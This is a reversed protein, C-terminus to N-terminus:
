HLKMTPGMRRNIRDRIILFATKLYGFLVVQHFRYLAIYFWRALRGEFTVSGSLNGMIQGVSSAKSLSVLSGRDRYAFALAPQARVRRRLSKALLAAQQSAAQARPPVPQEAGEPICQACDGMAYINADRTTQLTPTVVLQHIGNTELGDLTALLAPAKVGASWVKIDARLTKGSQTLLHDRRVETILEGTLVHINLRQLQKRIATSSTKALAPMVRTAAEVVTISVNQPAIGKFGYRNLERASHHLEAALEIGTAGAGVIVIALARRGDAHDGARWYANLLQRRLSEAARRQDLFICHQRAGPTGFDNTESGLAIVLTDYAVTRRPLIETDGETVAALTVCRKDRELGDMKGLIFQFHHQCGHAVYSLEDVYPNLAGAAVEHLRPKWLHTPNADILVIKALRKRGLANGLRTALELGGAGGGVIVITKDSGVEQDMDDRM